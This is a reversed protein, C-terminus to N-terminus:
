KATLYALNYVELRGDTVSELRLTYNVAPDLVAFGLVVWPAYYLSNASYLTAPPSFQPPPTFTITYDAFEAGISGYLEVFSARAPVDVQLFTTYGVRSHAGLVMYGGVPFAKQSEAITLSFDQRIRAHEDRSGM